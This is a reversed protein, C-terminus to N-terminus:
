NGCRMVHLDAVMENTQTPTKCFNNVDAVFATASLARVTGLAANAQDRSSFIVVPRYLTDNGRKYVVVNNYGHQRLSNIANAANAEVRDAATVVGYTAAASATPSPMTQSSANLKQAADFGKNVQDQISSASKELSNLQALVEPSSTKAKAQDIQGTLDSVSNSVVQFSDVAQLSNTRSIEAFGTDFEDIEFGKKEAANALQSAYYTVYNSMVAPFCLFFVIFVLLGVDRIMAATEQIASVKETYAM